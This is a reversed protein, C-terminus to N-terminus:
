KIGKIGVLATIAGGLLNALLGNFHAIGATSRIPADPPLVGDADPFVVESLIGDPNSITVTFPGAPWDATMDPLTGFAVAAAPKDRRARAEGIDKINDGM